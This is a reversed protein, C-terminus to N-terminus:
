LYCEHEREEGTKMVEGDGTNKMVGGTWVGGKKCVNDRSLDM